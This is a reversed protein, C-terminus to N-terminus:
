RKESYVLEQEPIRSLIDETRSSELEIASHPSTARWQPNLLCATCLWVLFMGLSLLVIKSQFSSEGDDRNCYISNNVTNETPYVAGQTYMSLITGQDWQINKCSVLTEESISYTCDM